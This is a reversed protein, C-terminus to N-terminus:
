TAMPSTEISEARARRREKEREDREQKALRDETFRLM